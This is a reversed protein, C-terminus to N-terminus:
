LRSKVLRLYAEELGSFMPRYSVVGVDLQILERLIVEQAAIGGEFSIRLTMEDVKQFSSIEEICASLSSLTQPGVPERFGVLVSAGPVEKSVNALTDHVLLRGQDIIAVEDCVEAVESLIHSSMFVLRNKGKLAKIIGRVESMGRPDLGTTPEDLIVIRPDDLLAAALCVRQKMGKSFHSVRKDIWEVLQVEAIVEEIREQRKHRPVGRIEAIFTLAERATLSAYIEPTEILTGVSELAQKKQTQVDMGNILTHGSSPFILGSFMKLTTTKGAGNPGLFGICKTGELKLNLESVATFNGYRKSLGTAEISLM